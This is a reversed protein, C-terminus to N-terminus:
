QDDSGTARSNHRHPCSVFKHKPFADFAFRELFAVWRRSRSSYCLTAHYLLNTSTPIEQSASFEVDLHESLRWTKSSLMSDKKDYRM